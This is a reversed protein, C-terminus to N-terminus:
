FEPGPVGPSNENERIEGRSVELPKDLKATQAEWRVGVGCGNYAPLSCIAPPNVQSNWGSLYLLLFVFSIHFEPILEEFCHNSEV